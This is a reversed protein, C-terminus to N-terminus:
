GACKNISLKLCCFQGEEPSFYLCTFFMCELHRFAVTDGCLMTSHLSTQPLCCKGELGTHSTARGDARVHAHVYACVHM